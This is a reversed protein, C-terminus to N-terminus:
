VTLLLPPAARDDDTPEITRLAADNSGRQESSSCSICSMAIRIPTWRARRVHVHVPLVCRVLDAARFLLPVPRAPRCCSVQPVPGRLKVRKVYTKDDDTENLKPMKLNRKKGYKQFTRWSSVRNDRNAEWEQDARKAEERKAAKEEKEIAALGDSRAAQQLLQRKRWERAILLEKLETRVEKEFDEDKTVDRSPPPLLAADGSLGALRDTMQQEKAFKKQQKKLEKERLSRITERATNVLENFQERFTTDLLENRAASLAAFAKQASERVEPAVKDPHIQVGVCIVCVRV